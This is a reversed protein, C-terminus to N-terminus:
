CVIKAIVVDVKANEIISHAFVLILLAKFKKQFCLVYEFIKM